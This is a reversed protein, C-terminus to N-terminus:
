SNSDSASDKTSASGAELMKRALDALSTDHPHNILPALTVRATESEGVRMQYEALTLRLGIDYPALLLAKQLGQVAVEPPKRGEAAYTRFFYSLPIPNDNEVRNAAAVANRVKPWLADDDEAKRFLAYIKQIMAGMAQPNRAIAKDAAAIAADDHGADYEAEALASLVFPDDPYLAAVKQAEELVAPATEDNVGRRSRMMVPLIAAEGKGLPRIAIAASTIREPGLRLYTLRRRKMYAALEKNLLELDGFAHTAAAEEGEGANIRQLYDAMQGARADSFTLYHFLLWSRGYFADYRRSSNERYKRTNLLLDIPVEQALVLEAARHDAPLGLGVAGGAEFKASSYFEAFGEALWLPPSGSFVSFMFHHAYEHLLIQEGESVRDSRGNDSVRPVFAVSGGARSQYFGSVFRNGEGFLKRVQGEDRVVFVTLRNSPSTPEEPLKYIYRMASRYRELMDTFERIDGESQDAYVLFNPSSAEHWEAQAPGALICFVSLIFAMQRLVVRVM